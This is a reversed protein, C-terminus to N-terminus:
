VQQSHVACHNLPGLVHEHPHRDTHVLCVNVTCNVGVVQEALSPECVSGGGEEVSTCGPRLQGGAEENAHLAVAYLHTSLSGM